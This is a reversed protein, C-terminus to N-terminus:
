KAHKSRKLPQTGAAMRQAGETHARTTVARNLRVWSEELRKLEDRCERVAQQALRARGRMRQLEESEPGDPDIANGWVTYQTPPPSASPPIASPPTTAPALPPLAAPQPQETAAVIAELARQQEGHRHHELQVIWAVLTHPKRAGGTFHVADREATTYELEIFQKLAHNADVFAASTTDGFRTSDNIIGHTPDVLQPLLKTLRQSLNKARADGGSGMRRSLAANM